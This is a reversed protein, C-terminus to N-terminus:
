NGLRYLKLANDRVVKRRVDPTIDTM